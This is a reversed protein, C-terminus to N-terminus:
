DAIKHLKKLDENHGIVVLINEKELIDNALPTINIDGDNKIAMINIGYNVRVNLELLSKGIWEQPVTIEIISYDDSLEIYDLINSAVLSQAVKVGMDKEPFIIKKAGVRKLIKGHLEDQAKVIINEVGMENLLLTIMISSDMNGGTCVVANEFNRVGLSRLVNEDTADGIVAHTVSNSVNQIVEENADIALVEYGMDYLTKSVSIGFRGLGIVVFSSM